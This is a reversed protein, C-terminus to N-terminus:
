KKNEGAGIEYRCGLAITTKTKTEIMTMLVLRLRGNDNGIM